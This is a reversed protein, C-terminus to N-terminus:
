DVEKWWLKVYKGTTPFYPPLVEGFKPNNINMRTDFHYDKNYGTKSNGSFTGVPGRQKQIFSGYVTLTDKNEDKFGAYYFSTGLAMMIANIEINNPVSNNFIDKKPIKINKETVLGLTDPIDPYGEEVVFCDPDNVRTNYLINGTINIDYNSAVTYKGKVGGDSANGQLSRIEGDVFIVGNTKDNYHTYTRINTTTDRVEVVTGSNYINGGLNLTNGDTITYVSTEKKISDSQDIFVKSNGAVTGFNMQRVDGKIWIGDTVAGSSNPLYVGKQASNTDIFEKSGAAIRQLSKSDNPETINRFTPLEIRDVGGLYGPSGLFNPKTQKDYAKWSTDGTAKNKYASSVTGYFSPSGAINIRDNSHLKGEIRDGGQFWIEKGGYGADIDAPFIEIDSFYAFMAFNDLIVESEITTSIKGSSNNWPMSGTSKINYSLPPKATILVSYTGAGLAPSGGNEDEFPNKPDPFDPNGLDEIYAIARDLGAEAIYFTEKSAEQLSSLKIDNSTMSLMAIAITSIALVMVLTAVLAMGRDNATQLALKRLMRQGGKTKM